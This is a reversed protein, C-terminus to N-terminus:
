CHCNVFCNTNDSFGPAQKGIRTIFYFWNDKEQLQKWVQDNAYIWHQRTQQLLPMAHEYLQILKDYYNKHVIYGSATQCELIKNVINNNLEQHQLVNYSLFLVDYNLNLKFFDSLLNQLTEKSVLFTFDDELILVNEYNEKKAIKLIELHSLGCGLIGFDPTEFAKFREYKLGFDNLEKEIQEKRDTRKDLNIYFIKDINDCM